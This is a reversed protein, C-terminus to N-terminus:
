TFYDRKNGHENGRSSNLIYCQQHVTSINKLPPDYGLGGIVRPIWGSHDERSDVDWLRSFVRHRFGMM